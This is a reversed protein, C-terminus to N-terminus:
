SGDTRFPACLLEVDKVYVTGSGSVAVNLRILDSAEGGRILFPTEYTAWDTTGSASGGFAIGRSFFERGNVRCWMELSASEIDGETRLGARYVLLCQEVGPNAVEFLHVSRLRKFLRAFFGPTAVEVRWGSGDASVCDRDVPTSGMAFSRLKRPPEARAVLAADAAGFYKSWDTM